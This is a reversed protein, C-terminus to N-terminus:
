STYQWTHFLISVCVCVRVGGSQINDTHESMYHTDQISSKCFSPWIHVLFLINPSPRSDNQLTSQSGRSVDPLTNQLGSQKTTAQERTAIFDETM